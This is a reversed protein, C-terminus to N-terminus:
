ATPLATQMCHWATGWGRVQLVDQFAPRDEPQTALCRRGLQAVGAHAWSPYQLGRLNTGVEVSVQPWWRLNKTTWWGGM